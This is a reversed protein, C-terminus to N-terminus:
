IIFLRLIATQAERPSIHTNPANLIKWLHQHHQCWKWIPEKSFQSTSQSFSISPVFLSPELPAITENFTCSLYSSHNTLDYWKSFTFFFILIDIRSLSSLFTLFCAIKVDIWEYILRSNEHALCRKIYDLPGVIWYLFLHFFEFTICKFIVDLHLWMAFM